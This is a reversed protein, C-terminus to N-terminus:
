PTAIDALLSFILATITIGVVVGDILISIYFEKLIKCKEELLVTRVTKGIEETQRTILQMGFLENLAIEFEQIDNVFKLM